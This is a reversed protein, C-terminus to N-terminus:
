SEKARVAERLFKLGKVVHKKVGTASIGMQDAVEQYRHREVFCQEMVFRTKEPLQDMLAMLREVRDDHATPDSIELDTVNQLFDAYRQHTIRRRILDICRSHIFRYLNRKWDALAWQDAHTWLETMAEGVVDRSQEEDNLLHLAYYFFAAYTTRYFNDFDRKAM